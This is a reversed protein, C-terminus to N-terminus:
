RAFAQRQMFFANGVIAPTILVAVDERNLMVKQQVFRGSAVPLRSSCSLERRAKFKRWGSDRDFASTFIPLMSYAAVLKRTM